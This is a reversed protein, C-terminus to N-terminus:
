PNAGQIRAQVAPSDEAATFFDRGDPLLLNSANVVRDGSKARFGDVRVETGLPLDTRRLGKQLLSYPGGFEIDWRELEGAENPVEIYVWSHPNVWMVRVISGSLTIPQNADFEASFAHHAVSQQPLTALTLAGVGCALVAVALSSKLSLTPMPNKRLFNEQWLCHL